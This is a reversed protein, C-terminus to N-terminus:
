IQLDVKVLEEHFKLQYGSKSRKLEDGSENIFKGKASTPPISESNRLTLNDETKPKHYGFIIATTPQATSLLM